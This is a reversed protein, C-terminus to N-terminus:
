SRTTPPYYVTRRREAPLRLRILTKLNRHDFEFRVTGRNRRLIEEVLRLELGIREQSPGSIVRATERSLALDRLSTFLIQIQIYGGEKLVLARDEAHDESWEVSETLFGISGNLPIFPFVYQIVSDLIYRLQEERLITEPLDKEFSRSIKIDKEKMQGEYKKLVEEIVTNVTSKKLLPTNIRVFDLLHDLVQDIKEIDELVIRHFSRRFEPDGFKNELLQAFTKISVLPNKIRHVIELFYLPLPSVKEEERHLERPRSSARLDKATLLALFPSSKENEIVPSLNEATLQGGKSVMVGRTIIHELESLNGPWWYNEFLDLVEQSIAMERGKLRRSHAALLYRAINSIEHARERLAPMRISITNLRDYLDESFKGQEVKTGLDESSSAIFRLGPVNGQDMKEQFAEDEMLRLLKLQGGPDLHGVERLYVTGCGPGEGMQRLCQSLQDEFSKEAVSKCEIRHFGHSREGGLHHIIRAVLGKATGSEGLVLMPVPHRIAQDILPILKSPILPSHLLERYTM